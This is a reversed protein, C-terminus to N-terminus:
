KSVLFILVFKNNICIRARFELEFNIQNHYPKYKGKNVHIYVGVKWITRINKFQHPEATLYLSYAVFYMQFRNM